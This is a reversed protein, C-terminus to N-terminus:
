IKTQFCHGAQIVCLCRGWAAASAMRRDKGATCTEQGRWVGCWTQGTSTALCRGSPKKIILFPPHHTPPNSGAGGAPTRALNDSKSISILFSWPPTESNQIAGSNVGWVNPEGLEWGRPHTPYIRALWTHALGAGFLGQGQWGADGLWWAM